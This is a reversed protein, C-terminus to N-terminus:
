YLGGKESVIHGLYKVSTQFLECKFPKLKLGASRLQCLVKELRECHKEFSSSIVIMDDLYLLLTKWHLGRFVKEM